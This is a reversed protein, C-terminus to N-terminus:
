TGASRKKSVNGADDIDADVGDAVVTAAYTVADRFRKYEPKTLIESALEKTYPIPQGDDDLVGQWDILVTHLLCKATVVDQREPALRGGVKYKRPEAEMLRAQMARFDSNGIGRVKLRLDGMEPIDDVWAGAEFKDADIKMESLKM